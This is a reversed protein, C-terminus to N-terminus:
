LSTYELIVFIQVIPGNIPDSTPLNHNFTISCTTVNLLTAVSATATLGLGTTDQAIIVTAGSPPNVFVGDQINSTVIFKFTNHAGDGLLNMAVQQNDIYFGYALNAL